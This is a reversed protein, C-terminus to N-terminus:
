SMLEYGFFALVETHRRLVNSIAEIDDDNLKAIQRSNQNAIAQPAYDKVRVKAESDITDTIEPMDLTRAVSAPEACFQEYTLLPAGFENKIKMVRTSRGVGAECIETLVSQRQEDTLEDIPYNRHLISSCNAYPDRNNVLLSSNPFVSLLDHIRVMNPPSKELIMTTDPKQKTQKQAKALWVSKVSRYNIPKDSDWRDPECVGPVLWQGEGDHRLLSVRDSTAMLNAFATSGSYPPTIVFLFHFQADDAYSPNPWRPLLYTNYARRLIRMLRNM